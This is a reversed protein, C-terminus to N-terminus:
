PSPNFVTSGPELAVVLVETRTPNIHITLQFAAAEKRTGPVFSVDYPIGIRTLLDCALLFETYSISINNLMRRFIDYSFVAALPGDWLYNM